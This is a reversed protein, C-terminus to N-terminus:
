RFHLRLLDGVADTGKTWCPYKPEPARNMDIALWAALPELRFAGLTLDVDRTQIEIIGALKGYNRTCVIRQLYVVAVLSLMRLFQLALLIPDVERAECVM